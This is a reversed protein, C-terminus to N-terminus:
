KLVKIAERWKTADPGIAKGTIASLAGAIEDKLDGDTSKELTEVLPACASKDGIQGLAWAAKRRAEPAGEHLVTILATTAGGFKLRGLAAALEAQVPGIKEALLPEVLGAGDPAPKMTACARAAAQRLSPSPDRLLAVVKARASLPPLKGLAEAAALAVDSDADSLAGVLDPEARADALV